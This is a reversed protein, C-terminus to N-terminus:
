SLEEESSKLSSKYRRLNAETTPDIVGLQYEADMSYASQFNLIDDTLSRYDEKIMSPTSDPDTFVEPYYDSLQYGFKTSDIILRQAYTIDDKCSPDCGPDSEWYKVSTPNSSTSSKYWTDTDKKEISGTKVVYKVQSLTDLLPNTMNLLKTSTVLEGTDKDIILIDWSYLSNDPNDFDDVMKVVNIRAEYSSSQTSSYSSIYYQTPSETLKSYDVTPSSYEKLGKPTIFYYKYNSKYSIYLYTRVLSQSTKTEKIWLDEDHIISDAVRNVWDEEIPNYSNFSYLSEMNPYNNRKIASRLSSSPLREPHIVFDLLYSVGDELLTFDTDSVTKTYLYHLRPDIRILYKKVAVHTAKDYIGTVKIDTDFQDKLFIQIYKVISNKDNYSIDM